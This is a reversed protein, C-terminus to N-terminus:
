NVSNELFSRLNDLDIVDISVYVLVKSVSFPFLSCFCKVFFSAFKMDMMDVM